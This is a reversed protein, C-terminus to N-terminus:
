GEASIGLHTCLARHTSSHKPNLDLQGDIEWADATGARGPIIFRYLDGDKIFTFGRSTWGAEDIPTRM